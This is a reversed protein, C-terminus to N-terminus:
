AAAAYTRKASEALRRRAAHITADCQRLEDESAGRVRLADRIVVLDRIHRLEEDLHDTM